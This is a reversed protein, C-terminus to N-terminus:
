VHARGIEGGRGHLDRIELSYFGDAPATWNELFPDSSLVREFTADDAESLPNGEANLIRLKPDLNSGLRRAFVQFSFRQQAKAEFRFRDFQEPEDIGGCLISPVAAFTNEAQSENLIPDNTSVIKMNNIAVGGISPAFMEIQTGPSAQPPVQANAESPVGQGVVQSITVVQIPTNAGAPVALPRAVVGFPRSSCEVAYTWDGNGQYRVDRVELLYEGPAPINVHMLPDGAFANDSSAITSGNMERLTIMPDVRTQMDHLRNQLRQSSMHFTWAGPQEIRIKFFDLDEAKSRFLM